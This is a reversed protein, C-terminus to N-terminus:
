PGEIGGDVRAPPEALATQGRAVASRGAPGSPRCTELRASPARATSCGGTRHASRRARLHPQPPQAHLAATGAAQTAQQLQPASGAGPDGWGGRGGGGGGGKARGRWAQLHVIGGEALEIGVNEGGYLRQYRLLLQQGGAHRRVQEAVAPAPLPRRPPPRMPLCHWHQKRLTRAGAKTRSNSPLEPGRGALREGGQLASCMSSQRCRWGKMRPKM